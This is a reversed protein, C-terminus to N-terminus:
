SRDEIAKELVLLMAVPSENPPTHTRRHIQIQIQIQIRAFLQIDSYHILSLCTCSTSRAITKCYIIKRQDDFRGGM